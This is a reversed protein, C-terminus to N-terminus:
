LLLLIAASRHEVQVALGKYEMVLDMMEGKMIWKPDAEGEGEIM